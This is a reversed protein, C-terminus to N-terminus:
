KELDFKYQVVDMMPNGKADMQKFILRVDITESEEKEASNFIVDVRGKGGPAIVGRPYDTTTCDCADILDIQADKGSTNTFEFFMSRKEGKKVKGLEIMKKDWTVFAPAQASPPTPAVSGISAPAITKPTAQTKEQTHCASLGAFFLMSFLFGKKM